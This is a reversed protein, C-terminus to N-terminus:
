GPKQGGSLKQCTRTIGCAPGFDEIARVSEPYSRRWIGPPVDESIQILIRGLRQGQELIEMATQYISDHDMLHVPSPFSVLFRMRPWHAIATAVSTDNDFPPSLSELGGLPSEGIAEWLPQLCGDSHIFLPIEKGAEELMGAMTDYARLCYSRFKHVGIMPATLNEGFVLYPIDVEQAARCVVEYIKRQVDEILRIVDTMLAVHEAFHETFDQINVWEIWLQQYPTKPLFCLPLGSEGLEETTARFPGLDKLVRIDRLYAMVVRYDDPRGTLGNALRVRPQM